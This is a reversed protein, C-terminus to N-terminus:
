QPQNARNHALDVGITYKVSGPSGHNAPVTTPSSPPGYSLGDAATEYM